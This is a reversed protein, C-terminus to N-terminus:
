LRLNVRVLNLWRGNRSLKCAQWRLFGGMFAVSML